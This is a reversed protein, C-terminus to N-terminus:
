CVTSSLLQGGPAGEASQKKALDAVSHQDLLELFGDFADDVISSLDPAELAKSRSAELPGKELARVVEGLSITDAPRKLTVGGSRGRDTRAFGERVLLPVLKFTVPETMGCAKALEAVSVTTDAHRALHVLVKVANTTQKSLRM